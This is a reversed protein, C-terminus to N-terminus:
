CAPAMVSSLVLGRIAMGSSASAPNQRRQFILSNANKPETNRASKPGSLSTSTSAVNTTSALQLRKSLRCM